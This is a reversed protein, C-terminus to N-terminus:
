QLQDQIGKEMKLDTESGQFIGSNLLCLLLQWGNAKWPEREERAVGLEGVGPGHGKGPM